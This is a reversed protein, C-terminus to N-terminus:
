NRRTGNRKNDFKGGKVYRISDFTGDAYDLRELKYIINDIGAKITDLDQQTREIIAYMSDQYAIDEETPKWQQKKEKKLVIPTEEVKNVVGALVLTSLLIITIVMLSIRWTFCINTNWIKM